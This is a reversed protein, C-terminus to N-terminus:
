FSKSFVVDSGIRFIPESTLCKGMEGGSVKFSFLTALNFLM